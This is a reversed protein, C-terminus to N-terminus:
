RLSQKEDVAQVEGVALGLTSFLSPSRFCLVKATVYWRIINSDGFRWTLKLKHGKPINKIVQSFSEIALFKVTCVRNNPLGDKLDISDAYKAGM